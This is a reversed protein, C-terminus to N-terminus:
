EQPVIEIKTLATLAHICSWSRSEGNELLFNANSMRPTSVQNPTPLILFGGTSGRGVIRGCFLKNWTHNAMGFLKDRTPVAMYLLNSSEEYIYIYISTCIYIYMYTATYIYMYVYIYISIYIYTYISIHIYVYIYIYMYIYLHIYIYIYTYM